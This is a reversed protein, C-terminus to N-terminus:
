DLPSLESNANDGTSQGAAIPQHTCGLRHYSFGRNCLSYFGVNQHYPSSSLIETYEREILIVCNQEM